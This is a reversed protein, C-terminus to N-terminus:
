EEPLGAKRLGEVYHPNTPRPAVAIASKVTLNPDLRRAEAVASKAEEMKGELALAAALKSYTGPDRVYGADLAKHCEDISADYDGQRFEAGCLYDHWVAIRSDRPSLRMARQMDSKAQEFRSVFM